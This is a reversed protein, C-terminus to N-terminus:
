ALLSLVIARVESEGFAVPNQELAGSLRMTETVFQDVDGPHVGYTSLSNPVDLEHLLACLREVFATAQWEQPRDLRADPMATYLDHYDLVGTEVNFKAVPGLFVGGAFGHPVRYRAGLPYSMAAAPGTGSNMLAVGALLSGYMAESRWHLDEPQRVVRPLARFVRGFAERAVIRALLNTRKAVFAETAHVLSDVGASVTPRIPCTLTLEPDVYAFRPRIAEGNIGLKRREQSDVFSANPTVESGTGATSPLAVIPLVKHEMREFGRYHIAPLRNHVLVAMAKAMDMTSGGGIGVIADVDEGLLRRAIDLDDYTPESVHCVITYPRCCAGEIDDLLGTVSPSQAIAHDIVVGVRRWGARALLGPVEHRCGAGFVIKTGLVFEFRGLENM